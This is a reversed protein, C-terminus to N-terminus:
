LDTTTIVDSVEIAQIEASEVKVYYNIYTYHLRMSLAVVDLLLLPGYNTTLEINSNVIAYSFALTSACLMIIKEPINYINVNKNKYNAYLEPVYCIFYLVSATYMLYSSQM